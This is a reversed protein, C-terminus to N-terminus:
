PVRAQGTVSVRVTQNSGTGAQTVCTMVSDSVWGTHLCSTEGVSAAGSPDFGGFNQGYIYLTVEDGSIQPPHSTPLVAFVLPTAFVFAGGM